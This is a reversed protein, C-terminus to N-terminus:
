VLFEPKEVADIKYFKHIIAFNFLKIVQGYAYAFAVQRNIVCPKNVGLM